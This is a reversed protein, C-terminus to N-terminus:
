NVFIARTFGLLDSFDGFLCRFSSCFSSCILALLVGLTVGCVGCLVFVLLLVVHVSSVFLCVSFLSTGQLFYSHFGSFM